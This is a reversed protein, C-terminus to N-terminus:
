SSTIAWVMDPLIAVDLSGMLTLAEEFQGESVLEDIQSGWDQMKLAWITSGNATLAAKETPTSLVFTPSNTSHSATLLRLTASLTNSSSSSVPLSSPQTGETSAKDENFPYVLTQTESLSLCSRVHIRPLTVLASSAPVSALVYPRTFAAEDALAPWTIGNPRSLRGDPGIFFSMAELEMLLNM